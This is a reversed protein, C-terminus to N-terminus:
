IFFYKEKKIAIIKVKNGSTTSAFFSLSDVPRLTIDYLM